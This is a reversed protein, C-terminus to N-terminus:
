RLGGVDRAEQALGVPVFRCERLDTGEHEIRVM